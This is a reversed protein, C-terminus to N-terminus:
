FPASAVKCWVGRRISNLVRSKEGLIKKIATAFKKKPQKSTKERPIQGIQAQKAGCLLHPDYLM